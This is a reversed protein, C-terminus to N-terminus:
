ETKPLPIEAVIPLKFNLMIEINNGYNADSGEEKLALFFSIIFFHIKININEFAAVSPTRYFFTNKFTEQVECSFM